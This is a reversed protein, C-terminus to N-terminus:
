HNIVGLHEPDGGGFLLDVAAGCKGAEPMGIQIIRHGRAIEGQVPGTQWDRDIFPVAPFLKAM